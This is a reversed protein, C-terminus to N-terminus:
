RARKGQQVREAHDKLGRLLASRLGSEHTGGDPTPMTNCYSHVPLRRRRRDLGGGM